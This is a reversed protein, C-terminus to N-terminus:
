RKLVFWYEIEAKDRGYDAPLPDVKGVDYLAREGSRDLAVNGSSTKLRIDKITGDRLITFTFIAPPATRLRSDLDQQNWKETVRQQVLAAYAGFRDGLSTGRVGSGEAGPLGMMPSVIAGGTSSYLQNTKPQTYPRYRERPATVQWVQKSPMTRGKLPIADPEPPKVKQPVPKPQPPPQPVQSETDNAVPNVPGSRTVMPVKAVSHVSVAGGATALDGWHEPSSSNLFSGTLLLGVLSGHLAVSALFPKGLPEREDLTDAYPM